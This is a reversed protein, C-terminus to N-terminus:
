CVTDSQTEPSGNFTGRDRKGRWRGRGSGQEPERGGGQRGFERPKKGTEKGKRKGGGWVRQTQKWRQSGKTGSEKAEQADSRNISRQTERKDKDNEEGRETHADSMETDDSM